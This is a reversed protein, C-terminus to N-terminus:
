RRQTLFGHGGHTVDIAAQDPWGDMVAPLIETLAYIMAHMVGTQMGHLLRPNKDAVLHREAQGM